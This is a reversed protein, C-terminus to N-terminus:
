YNGEGDDSPMALITALEKSFNKAQDIYWYWRVTQVQISQASEGRKVMQYEGPILEKWDQFVAVIEDRTLLETQEIGQLLHLKKTLFEHQRALLQEAEPTFWIMAM